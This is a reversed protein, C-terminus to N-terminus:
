LISIDVFHFYVEVFHLNIFPNTLRPKLWPTTEATAFINRINEFCLMKLIFNGLRVNKASNELHFNFFGRLLPGVMSSHWINVREQVEVIFWGSFIAFM